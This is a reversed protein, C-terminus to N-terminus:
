RGPDLLWIHFLRWSALLMEGLHAATTELPFDKGTLQRAAILVGGGGIINVSVWVELSPSKYGHEGLGTICATLILFIPQTFQPPPMNSLLLGQSDPM